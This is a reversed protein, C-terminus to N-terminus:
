KPTALPPTNLVVSLPSVQVGIVSPCTGSPDVPTIATASEVGSTM